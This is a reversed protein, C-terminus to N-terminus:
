EVPDDSNLGQQELYGSPISKKTTAGLKKIDQVRKILNGRGSSLRKKTTIFAASAKDLQSGVEDLSELMLAFQDHLAGAQSAIKESNKNQRDYRWLNGVTRLSTM